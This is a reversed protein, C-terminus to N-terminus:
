SPESGVCLGGSAVEQGLNASFITMNEIVRDISACKYDNLGQTRGQSPVPVWHAILYM